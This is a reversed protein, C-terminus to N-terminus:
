CTSTRFLLGVNHRNMIVLSEPDDSGFCKPQKSRGIVLLPFKESGDVNTRALFTVRDKQVKRGPLRGPGITTVPAM